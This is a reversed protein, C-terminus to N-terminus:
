CASCWTLSVQLVAVSAPPAVADGGGGGAAVSALPVEFLRMTNDESSTLLCLGDPSWKVGKVFNNIQNSPDIFDATVRWSAVGGTLADVARASATGPISDVSQQAALADSAHHSVVVEAVPAQQVNVAPASGASTPTAADVHDESQSVSETNALAQEYTRKRAAALQWRPVLTATDSVDAAEAESKNDGSAAASEAM